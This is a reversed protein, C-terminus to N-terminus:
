QSSQVGSYETLYWKGDILSFKNEIVFREQIVLREIMLGDFNLLNLRKINADEDNLRLLRWNDVDWYFTSDVGQPDKGMLPFDTRELQFTSDTYYMQRFSQFDENGQDDLPITAENGGCAILGLLALWLIYRM